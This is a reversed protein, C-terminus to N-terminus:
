FLPDLWDAETEARWPLVEQSGGLHVHVQGRPPTQHHADKRGAAGQLGEAGRYRGGASPPWCPSGGIAAQDPRVSRSRRACVRRQSVRSRRRRSRRRKVDTWRRGETLPPLKQSPTEMSVRGNWLRTATPTLLLSAMAVRFASHKLSLKQPQLFRRTTSRCDHQRSVTTTSVPSRLGLSSLAYDHRFVTTMTVTSTEEPTESFAAHRTRGRGIASKKLGSLESFVRSRYTERACARVCM